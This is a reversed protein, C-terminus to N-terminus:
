AVIFLFEHLWKVTLNSMIIAPPKVIELIQRSLVGHCDGADTQVIFNLM